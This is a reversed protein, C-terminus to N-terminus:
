NLSSKKTSDAAKGPLRKRKVNLSKDFSSKFKVSKKKVKFHYLIEKELTAEFGLINAIDMLLKNYHVNKHSLLNLVYLYKLNYETCFQKLFGYPKNDIMASVLQHLEEYTLTKSKVTSM